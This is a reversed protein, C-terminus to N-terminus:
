WQKVLMVSFPRLLKAPRNTDGKWGDINVDISFNQGEKRRSAALNREAIENYIIPEVHSLECEMSWIKTTSDTSSVDRLSPEDHVTCPLVGPVLGSVAGLQSWAITPMPEELFRKRTPPELHKKRESLWPLPVSMWKYVFKGNLFGISRPNRLWTQNGTKKKHGWKGRSHGLRMSKLHTPVLLSDFRKSPMLEAQPSNPHNQQELSMVSVHQLVM